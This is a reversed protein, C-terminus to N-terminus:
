SVEVLAVSLDDDNVRVANYPQTPTFREGSPSTMLVYEVDDSAAHGAAEVKSREMPKNSALDNIYALVAAKVDAALTATDAGKAYGVTLSLSIEERQSAFVQVRPGAARWYYLKAEVADALADNGRGDPDGVYVAVYGGDEPDVYTEDITVFSVGPVNLAGTELAANTGRRLSKRYARVRARFRADTEEADGGAFRAPNTVTAESDGPITDDITTLTGVAVNTGRGTTNATATVNVTSEGSPIEASTDTAVQITEGNITASVRTGSPITLVGTSSGRTFRLTGRSGTAENRTIETGYRDAVLAELVEGRATDMFTGSWSDLIVKIAHDAVMAAGGVYGGNVSGESFDTLDPDLATVEAQAAERLEDFTPPTPM